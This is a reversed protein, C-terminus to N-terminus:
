LSAQVRRRALRMALSSALAYGSVFLVGEWGETSGAIAFMPLAVVPALLVAATPERHPWRKTVAVMVWIYLLWGVVLPIGALITIYIINGVLVTQWPQDDSGFVDLWQLLGVFEAYILWAAVLAVVRRAM